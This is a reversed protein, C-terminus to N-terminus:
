AAGIIASNLVRRLDGVRQQLDFCRQANGIMTVIFVAITLMRVAAGVVSVADTSGPRQQGALAPVELQLKTAIRQRIKSIIVRIVPAVPSMGSCTQSPGGKRSRPNSGPLGVPPTIGRTQACASNRFSK